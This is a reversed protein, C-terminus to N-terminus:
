LSVMDQRLSGMSMVIKIAHEVIQNVTANQKNHKYLIIFLGRIHVNLVCYILLLNWSRIGENEKEIEHTGHDIQCPVLARLNFYM